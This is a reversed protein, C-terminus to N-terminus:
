SGSKTSLTIKKKIMECAQANCVSFKLEANLTVPKDTPTSGELPVDFQLRAETFPKTPSISQGALKANPASKDINLFTPYELNMKYDALPLVRVSASKGTKSTPYQIVYKADGTEIEVSGKTNKAPQKNQANDSSKTNEVKLKKTTPQAKAQMEKEGGSCAVTFLAFVFVFKM